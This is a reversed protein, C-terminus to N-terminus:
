CPSFRCWTGPASAGAEWPRTLGIWGALLLLMGMEHVHGRRIMIYALLQSLFLAFLVINAVGMAFHDFLANFLMLLFLISMLTLTMYHLFEAHRTKEPDNEFRPPSFISQLLDM